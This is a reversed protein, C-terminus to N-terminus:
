NEAKEKSFLVQWNEAPIKPPLDFGNAVESVGNARQRQGNIEWGKETLYSACNQRRADCNTPEGDSAKGGSTIMGGSKWNIQSDSWIRQYFPLRIKYGL